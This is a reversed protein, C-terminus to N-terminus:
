KKIRLSIKLTEIGQTLSNITDNRNKVCKIFHKLEEIYMLNVRKKSSLKYNNKIPITKWKQEKSNFIKM